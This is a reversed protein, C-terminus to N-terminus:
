NWQLKFGLDLHFDELIPLNLVPLKTEDAIQDLVAKVRMENSAAAVFWLNFTHERQYNHNVEEFSSVLAAVDNLREEPVAMTALTSTGVANPKIIAGIRSITNEENLRRYADIVDYENMGIREAIVAFPRSTLPFDRQFEDLLRKDFANM